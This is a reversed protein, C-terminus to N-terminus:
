HEFVGVDADTKPQLVLWKTPSIVNVVAQASGGSITGRGNSAISYNAIVGLDQSLGVSKSTDENLTITGLGDASIVAVENRIRSRNPKHGICM